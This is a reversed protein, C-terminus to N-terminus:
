QDTRTLHHAKGIQLRQKLNYGTVARQGFRNLIFDNSFALRERENLAEWTAEREVLLQEDLGSIEKQTDRYWNEVDPQPPYYSNRQLPEKKIFRKYLIWAVSGLAIIIIIQWRSM